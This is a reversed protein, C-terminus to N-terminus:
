REVEPGASFAQRVERMCSVGAPVGCYVTIQKILAALEETTVGNRRAGQLHLRFEEMRGLAGTMALTMLSRDRHTMRDDTWITGWCYETIFRQFEQDFPGDGNLARDVYEAGLVTRRAQMGHEFRGDGATTTM